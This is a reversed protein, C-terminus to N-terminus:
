LTTKFHYTGSGVELVAEVKSASFGNIGKSKMVPVGSETIKSPNRSPIFVTAYTNAPVTIDLTFTGNPKRHWESAIHGRISQLSAKAYTMGGGPTPRMMIHRYGPDNVDWDIGAVRSMMWEGISGMSYHNFSNMGPDQFGKDHRWGDWREWITTAGQRISYGWSPFTDNQLLKYAIDNRGISTLTPCIYGVGLFGTSLHNKKDVVILRALKQAAIQRMNSPLLDFWLSIVYACQSNGEITGDPHVFKQNFAAKIESLLREYKAADSKLGLIKATKAMLETSHAFFMTALVPRPTDDGINLWDGFNANSNKVWIHDPNPKDIYDIWRAMSQYHRALIRKDGYAEYITWPVIVGADGWAPAGDGNDVVRPSVDSYGGAPSQADEMDRTWKTMFAAIDNNFTATRVFIQADGMWGLREDRQPCDTPAELYNGRAGWFINHALQNVLPSSCSFDGVRANNSGVVVGTIADKGPKGPYGEVDVYRFGHFTFTPEYVETSGGRLTYIDTAKASRLNTTYITGNPNLMEAFRLKVSDGAHGKVKLRAWGVMNQGLDFIFHGKPAEKITLPKIEDLYQVSPNQQANIAIKTLPKVLPDSWNKAKYSPTSWGYEDSRADFTEGDLLDDAKIAGTGARWSTDTAVLDRRGNKGTVELQALGMSQPGYNQGLTWGVRGCYWGNGLVMGLVHRGPKLYSTVDYTQYLVRKKYDTWGPRFIDSSLPKGDIYVKYLGLASAYLRAKQVSGGVTFERRLYPAPGNERPGGPRGWPRMGFEGLVKADVFQTGTGKLDELKAAGWSGDTQFTETSGNNYTVKGTLLLGAPGTDNTAKIIIDNSDAKLFAKIDVPHLMTFGDGKGVVKGNIALEFHDDAAIGVQASKIDGSKLNLTKHLYVSGSPMGADMDGEPYWIWSAGDGKLSGADSKKLGIWKGKWDSKNLLGMEWQAPQSFSSQMSYVNWVAVKWYAHQRSQLPKGAYEIQATSDSMVKGSDWLDGKGRKLLSPSSAVIIRYAIQHADRDPSTDIWSMRPHTEEIGMPDTLYECRLNTVNLTPTGTILSTALFFLSM